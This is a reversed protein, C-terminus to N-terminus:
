KHKKNFEYIFEETEMKKQKTKLKFMYLNKTIGAEKKLKERKDTRLKIGLKSCLRLKRAASSSKSSM